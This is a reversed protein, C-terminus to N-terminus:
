SITEIIGTLHIKKVVHAVQEVPFLIYWMVNKKDFETVPKSQSLYEM